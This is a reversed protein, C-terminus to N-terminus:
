GFYKCYGIRGIYIWIWCWIKLLICIKLLKKSYKIWYRGYSRFTKKGNKWCFFLKEVIWLIKIILCLWINLIVINHLIQHQIQIYLDFYTQLKKRGHKYFMRLWFLIRVNSLVCFIQSLRDSMYINRNLMLNHM